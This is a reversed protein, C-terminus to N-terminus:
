HNRALEHHLILFPGILRAASFLVAVMRAIVVPFDSPHPFTMAVFM